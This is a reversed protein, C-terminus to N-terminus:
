RVRPEPIGIFCIFLGGCEYQAHPLFQAWVKCYPAVLTNGEKNWQSIKWIERWPYFSICKWWYYTRQFAVKLLVFTSINKWSQLYLSDVCLWLCCFCLQLIPNTKPKRHEFFRLKSQPLHANQSRAYRCFLGIIAELSAINIRKQIKPTMLCM